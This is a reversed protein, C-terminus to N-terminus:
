AVRCDAIRLLLEFEVQLIIVPVCLVGKRVSTPMGGVKPFGQGPSGVPSGPYPKPSVPAGGPADTWGPWLEKSIPVFVADQVFGEDEDINAAASAVM